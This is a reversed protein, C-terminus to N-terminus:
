LYTTSRRLLGFCVLVISLVVLFTFVAVASGYGYDLGMFALKYVQYSLLSTSYGPGGQTFGYVIDFSLVRYAAVFMTLTIVLPALLPLVVTRYTTWPSAGDVKAADYLESPINQLGALIFIAAWPANKWADLVIIAVRAGLPSALWV